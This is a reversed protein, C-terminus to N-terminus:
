ETDHSFVAQAGGKAGAIRYIRIQELAVGAVERTVTALLEVEAFRAALEDSRDRRTVAVYLAPRVVLSPDPSPDMAYRIREDLQFVPLASGAEHLAFAIQGTMGYASTAVWAADERKALETIERAVEPWGRLQFTPDKRAFAGTLPTVAHVYIVLSVAVGIPVAVARLIKLVRAMMGSRTEIDAAVFAAMLVLAPFLPAPWNAQVRNHLSHFLLYAFFPLSTLLPLAWGADRRRVTRAVAVGIGVLAIVAIAPNLLGLEAGIFEGIFRSTWGHPVARGFQKVFSAWEHAANWQVVPVTILLALIGGAWLQWTAFAARARPMAVLWVIIGAGLFLVSYKSILGLGAFLGVALLWNASAAKGPKLWEALAWLTLGWFLVSPTDPTAILSGIGILITANFFLVAWGAARRGHLLLCTRWLALSGLATALIGVLRVALANDGVLWQGAAIWWGIMPPHDYYGAAPHLGWLRYYAEDESLWAHGGAWLRIATLVVVFLILAPPRLWWGLGADTESEATVPAPM